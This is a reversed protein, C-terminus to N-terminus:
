WDALPVYRMSLPVLSMDLAKLNRFLYPKPTYRGPLTKLLQQVEEALKPDEMKNMFLGMTFGVTHVGKKASAKVVRYRLWPAARQFETQLDPHLSLLRFEAGWTKKLNKIPGSMEYFLVEDGLNRAFDGLEETRLLITTNSLREKKRELYQSIMSSNESAYWTNQDKTSVQEIKEGGTIAALYVNWLPTLVRIPRDEAQQETWSTIPAIVFKSLGQELRLFRQELDAIYNPIFVSEKEPYKQQWLQSLEQTFRWSASTANGTDIEMVSEARVVPSLFPM